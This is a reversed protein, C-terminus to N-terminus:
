RYRQPGLGQWRTVRAGPNRWGCQRVAPVPSLAHLRHRLSGSGHPTTDFNYYYGRPGFGCDGASLVFAALPMFSGADLLKKQLLIYELRPMFSGADLLKKQLLIYELFGGAMFCQDKPWPALLEFPLPENTEKRQPHWRDAWFDNPWIGISSWQWGQPAKTLQFIVDGDFAKGKWGSTRLYLKANSGQLRNEATVTSRSVEAQGLEM